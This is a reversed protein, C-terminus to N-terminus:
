ARKRRRLPLLGLLGIALLATTSPLPLRPETQSTGYQFAADIAGVQALNLSTGAAFTLTFRTSDKVLDDTTMVGQNTAANDGASLIGYNLGNVAAPDQLNAGAFTPGGFLGLGASSIGQDWGTINDPDSLLGSAYAWEGGVVDGAPQVAEVVGNNWVDSGAPLVATGSTLAVTSGLTDMLSFFLGTLLDSPARTDDGSVNSLTVTLTTGSVQFVAMASLVSGTASNVGSLVVTKCTATAVACPTAPFAWTTGAAFLAVLASM